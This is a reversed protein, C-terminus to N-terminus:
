DNSEFVIHVAMQCRLCFARRKQYALYYDSCSNPPVANEALGRPFGRSPRLRVKGSM